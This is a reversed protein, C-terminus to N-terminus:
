QGHTWVTYFSNELQPIDLPRFHHAILADTFMPTPVYSKAEVVFSASGLEDDLSAPLTEPWKGDITHRDLEFFLSRGFYKKARYSITPDQPSIVLGDSRRAFDVVADYKDDGCRVFLLALSRDFQVFFSFIACLLFIASFLYASKAPMGRIWTGIPELRVVVLAIMAIYGFLLSSYGGGSKCMTWISVPVLVIIGSWVWKEADTLPEASISISIVALLFLPSTAIMYAALPAVRAYDVKISGPVTVMAFFVQPWLAYVAGLVALVSAAPICGILVDRVNRRWILSHVAPVLAFAAATQKFFLACVFLAISAVVGLPSRWVIWVCLGGVGFFAAAADPQASFLILNTRFNLGLVLLVAVIWCARGKRRCLAFALLAALALSFLSLGIRGALLSLGTVRFVAALTATLLPGYLHTAHAPEYLPLGSNLRVAEM